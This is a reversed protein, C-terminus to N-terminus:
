RPESKRSSMTSRACRGTSLDDRAWRYLGMLFSAHTKLGADIMQETFGGFAAIDGAHGRHGGRGLAREVFASEAHAAQSAALRHRDVGHHANGRHGLRDGRAGCQLQHLATQQLEVCRGARHYRREAIYAHQGAEIGLPLRQHARGTPGDGQAMQQGVRSAEAILEPIRVDLAVLVQHLDRADLGAGVLRDVNGQNGIRAFAPFITHIGVPGALHDLGCAALRQALIKLVVQEARQAHAAGGVPRTLRHARLHGAHVLACVIPRKRRDGAHARWRRGVNVLAAAPPPEGRMLHHDVVVVDLGMDRAAVLADHAAAGCDVTIVLEAGQEKLRRFAAPSPGYGEIVRDPVYIPLDRGMARFWRVLQAASSAGDVDYDAFVALPRECVVADVLISAALDMDQFSTPDPFQAKLTPSLFDVAGEPGIGRSALARALPEVLDHRLQHDRVVAEDAPRRRWTRGTLSRRVGLFGVADAGDAM